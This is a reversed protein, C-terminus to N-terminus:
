TRELIPLLTLRTRRPDITILAEQDPLNAIERLASLVQPGLVSPNVLGARIQIVSPRTAATSSLITGFDLDQTLVVASMTVAFQMIKSDTSNSPGLQSWHVAEIGAAALYGTWDPSLNVDVLVMM